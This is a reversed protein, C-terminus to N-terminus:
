NGDLCEVKRIKAAVNTPRGNADWCKQTCKDEEAPICVGTGMDCFYGSQAGRNCISATVVPGGPPNPYRHAGSSNGATALQAAVVLALSLSAAVKISKSFRMNSSWELDNDARPYVAVGAGADRDM